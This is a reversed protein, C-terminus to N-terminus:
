LSFRSKGDLSLLSENTYIYEKDTMVDEHYLIKINDQAFANLGVISNIDTSNKM